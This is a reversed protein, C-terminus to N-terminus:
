NELRAVAVSDHRVEPVLLLGRKRDVDFAAPSRVDTLVVSTKGDPAIRVIHRGNWSSVLHGGGTGVILGDLKGAKLKKRNKIDGDTTMNIVTTGGYTVVSLTGDPNVDIGNPRHLDRGHAIRDVTGDQAVRYVAGPVDETGTDTVYLTGDGTVVIDNLFSAGEIKLSRVPKGSEMDFTRLVGIDAVHLHRGDIEMSKPANLTVGPTDPSIWKRKVINGSPDLISIFGNNDEALMKGNINSVLYRDREADHRICEPGKFEAKKFLDRIKRLMEAQTEPGQGTKTGDPTVLYWEGQFSKVDQGTAAEKGRDAAFHYLPWGNYTVQKEADKTPRQITDILSQKADGEAAVTGTATVPPWATACAETCNSHAKGTGPARADRTFLYVARGQGDVLFPGHDASMRVKLTEIRDAKASVPMLVAAALAASLAVSPTSPSM